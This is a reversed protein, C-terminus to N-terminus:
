DDGNVMREPDNSDPASEEVKKAEEIEQILQLCLRAILDLYYQKKSMITDCFVCVGTKSSYKGSGVKTFLTALERRTIGGDIAWQSEGDLGLFLEELEILAPFRRGHMQVDVRSALTRYLDNFVELMNTVRATVFDMAVDLAEEATLEGSSCRKFIPDVQRRLVDFSLSWSMATNKGRAAEAFEFLASEV